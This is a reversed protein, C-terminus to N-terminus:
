GKAQIAKDGNYDFIKIPPWPGMSDIYHRNIRIVPPM